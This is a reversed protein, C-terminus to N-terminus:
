RRGFRFLSLDLSELSGDTPLDALTDFADPGFGVQRKSRQSHFGIHGSAIERLNLTAVPRRCAVKQNAQRVKEICAWRSEEGVFILKMRDLGNSSASQM